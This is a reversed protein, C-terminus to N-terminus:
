SKQQDIDLRQFNAHLLLTISSKITLTHDPALPDAENLESSAAELQYYM